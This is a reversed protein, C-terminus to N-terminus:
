EELRAYRLSRVVFADFGVLAPVDGPSSDLKAHDIASTVTVGLDPAIGDLSRSESAPFYKDRPGTALEVPAEIRGGAALPSFAELDQKVGGPLAAYLNEFRGPDRNALLAVVSRAGPGLDETRRLRLGGLPNPNERGVNEIESSLTRRDDGPPLAAVLSRAVVYSLFPDATHRVFSGEEGEYFGTTAVNVVTRIDSYPAVGAVVSVRDEMEPKGAALLALTAGTSIGVLAVRENAADPHNSVARAAEATEAVTEPTIRDETLGPLDPLVVLYGARAFGEALRRAEPLKRGEPVTGNVFFVAPWPGEGAPRAILAPNGAVTEDAFRPEGSIAEAAPTVVPADVVSSIVVAARAQADVWSWFVFLVGLLLALIVLLLAVRRRRRFKKGSRVRVRLAEGSPSM